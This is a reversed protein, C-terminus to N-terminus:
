NIDGVFYHKSNIMDSYEIGGDVSVIDLKPKPMSMVLNTNDIIKAPKLNSLNIPKYLPKDIQRPPTIPEVNQTDNNKRSKNWLYIGGIVIIAGFILTTNNFKM